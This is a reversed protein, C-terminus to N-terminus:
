ITLFAQKNNKQNLTVSGGSVEVTSLFSKFCRKNYVQGSDWDPCSLGPIQGGTGHGVYPPHSM